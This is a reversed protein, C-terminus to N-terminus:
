LSKLLRAQLSSARTKEDHVAQLFLTMDEIISKKKKAATESSSLGIDTEATSVSSEPNQTTEDVDTENGGETCSHNDDLLRKSGVPIEEKTEEKTEDAIAAEATVAEEAETTSDDSEEEKKSSEHLMKCRKVQSDALIPTIKPPLLGLDDRSPRQTFNENEGTSIRLSALKHVTAAQCEEEHVYDIQNTSLERGSIIKEGFM